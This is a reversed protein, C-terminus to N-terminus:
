LEEQNIDTNNEDFKGLVAVSGVPPVDELNDKGRQKARAVEEETFLFAYNKNKDPLQMWVGVYQSDSGFKRNQNDVIFGRGRVVKKTRDETGDQQNQVDM